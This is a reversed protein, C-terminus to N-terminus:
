GLQKYRSGPTNIWHNVVVGDKENEGIRCDKGILEKLPEFRPSAMLEGFPTSLQSTFAFRQVISKGDIDSGYRIPIGNVARRHEDVLRDSTETMGARLREVEDLSVFREFHVFGHAEFFDRQENTLSSGLQFRTTIPLTM